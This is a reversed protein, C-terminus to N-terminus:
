LRKSLRLLLPYRLKAAGYPCLEVCCYCKICADEDALYPFGRDDKEIVQPPCNNLCEYCKRCISRDYYPTATLQRRILRFAPFNSLIRPKQPLEFDTIKIEDGIIEADNKVLGRESSARVTYLMRMDLSAAKSLHYDLTFADDSAALFGTNIPRGSSPGERDMSVIGDVINLQPKIYEALDVLMNAFDEPDKFRLHCEAKATGIVFGFLNKVAATLGMFGHTKFKAANVIIDFENLAKTIKLNAKTKGGVNIVEYSEDFYVFSIGLEDMVDKLGTVRLARALRSRTNVGGPSEGLYVVAGDEILAKAIARVIEPHTTVAAQPTKAMLINPKVIVKKGSLSDGLFIRVAKSAFCEIEERKVYSDIKRLFLRGTNM